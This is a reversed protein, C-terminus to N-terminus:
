ILVAVEDDMLDGGLSLQNDIERGEALEELYRKIEPFNGVLRAVYERALFLVTSQRSATVTATTAGGRLLAMEGFVDGTRLAGLPVM